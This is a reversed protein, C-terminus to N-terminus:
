FHLDTCSSVILSIPVAAATANRVQPSWGGLGPLGSGHALSRAVFEACEYDAANLLSLVCHTNRLVRLMVADAARQPTEFRTIKHVRQVCRAPFHWCPRSEHM